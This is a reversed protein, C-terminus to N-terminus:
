FAGTVTMLARDRGISPSMRARSVQEDRSLLGLMLLVGGLLAVGASAGLTIDTALALRDIPEVESPACTGDDGCRDALAQDKALTVGGLVVAAVVGAVGVALVVAGPVVLPSRVSAPEPRPEPQPPPADVVSPDRPAAQAALASLSALREEVEARNDHGAPALRLFGEFAAIAEADHGLRVESQGINYLLEFRGSIGHARRFQAVAEDFRGAAFAARGSEFAERASAQTDVPEEEHAAEEQAAAPTGLATLLLALSAGRM